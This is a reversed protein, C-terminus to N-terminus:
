PGRTVPARDIAMPVTGSHLKDPDQQGDILLSGGLVAPLRRETQCLTEAHPEFGQM